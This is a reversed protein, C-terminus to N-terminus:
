PLGTVESYRDALPPTDGPHAGSSRDLGLGSVVMSLTDPPTDPPHTWRERPSVRFLFFGVHTKPTDPPPTRRVYIYIYYLTGSTNRRIQEVPHGAPTDGAYIYVLIYTYICREQVTKFLNAPSCRFANRGPKPLPWIYIYLCVTDPAREDCETAVCGHPL